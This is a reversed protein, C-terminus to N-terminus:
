GMALLLKVSHKLGIYVLRCAALDYWSPPANLSDPPSASGREVSGCARPIGPDLWTRCPSPAAAYGSRAAYQQFLDSSARPGIHFASGSLARREGRHVPARRRFSLELGFRDLRRRRFRHMAVVLPGPFSLDYGGRVIKLKIMVSPPSMM